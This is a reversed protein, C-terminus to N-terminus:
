TLIASGAGAVQAANADSPAVLQVSRKEREPM